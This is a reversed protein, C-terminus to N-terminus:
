PDRRPTCFWDYVETNSTWADRAFLARVELVPPVEELCSTLDAFGSFKLM